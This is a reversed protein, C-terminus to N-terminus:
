INSTEIYTNYKGTLCEVKEPFDCELTKPNFLTGPACNRPGGRGNWCDLYQNCALDYVFQGTVGKPCRPFNLLLFIITTNHFHIPIM